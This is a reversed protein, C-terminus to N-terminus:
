SLNHHYLMSTSRCVPRAICTCFDTLIHYARGTLLFMGLIVPLSQQTHVRALKKSHSIIMLRCQLIYQCTQCNLETITQEQACSYGTDM